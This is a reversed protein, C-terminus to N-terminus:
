RLTEFSTSDLYAADPCIDLEYCLDDTQTHALIWTPVGDILKVKEFSNFHKLQEFVGELKDSMDYIRKEGNDFSLLLKYGSLVKIHKVERM